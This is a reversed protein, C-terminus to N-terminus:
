KTTKHAAQKTAPDTKKREDQKAEAILENAKCRTMENPDIYLPPTSTALASFGNAGLPGEPRRRKYIIRSETIPIADKQEISRTEALRGLKIMQDLARFTPETEIETKKGADLFRQGEVVEESRVIEYGEPFHAAMLAHAQRMFDKRGFPTNLPVGIVGFEGDQYVYRADPIGACGALTLTLLLTSGLSGLSLLRRTTGRM